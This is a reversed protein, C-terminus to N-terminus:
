QWKGSRLRKPKKLRRSLREVDRRDVLPKLRRAKGHLPISVRMFRGGFKAM